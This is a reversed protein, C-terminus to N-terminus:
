VGLVEQRSGVERRGDASGWCREGWVEVTWNGNGLMELGGGQRLEGVERHVVGGAVWCRGGGGGGAWSESGRM